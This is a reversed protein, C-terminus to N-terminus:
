DRLEIPKINARESWGNPKGRHNKWKYYNTTIFPRGIPEWDRDYISEIQVLYYKM